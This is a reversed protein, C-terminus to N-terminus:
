LLLQEEVARHAQEFAAQTWPTGGADAGAFSIRDFRERGRTWPRGDRRGYPFLNYGHGWRNVTIALIDEAADFGWPGLVRDLEARIERELDAFPKSELEYRGLETQERAPRGPSYLYKFMSLVTPHDPHHRPRYTGVALPDLVHMWTCYGDPLYMPYAGTEALPRWQRLLVNIYLQSSYGYQELAELQTEPLGSVVHKAVMGWATVIAGKARVQHVAGDPRAYFLAVGEKGPLHEVRVVTSRLRLRVDDENRDFREPRVEANFVGEMSDEGSLADPLLKKLLHRAVSHNGDPYRYRPEYGYRLLGGDDYFGEGGVGFFGPGVRYGHLASLADCGLGVLDTAYLNSFRVAEDGLGLTERLYAEWSMAALAGEPDAVGELYNRRTTYLEVLERKAAESLPARAFFRDYPAEHFGTVWTPRIGPYTRPDFFVGPALGFRERFGPDRFGALRGPDIGLEELIRAAAPPSAAPEELDYTGGNVILTTDESRFTNRRAHGGFDENNELLLVRSRGGSERRHVYAAALGALGAGVVVLDYREGTDVIEAPLDRYIDDRVRHGRETSVPDQGAFGSTSGAARRPSLAKPLAIGVAAGQLFDRRTIPRGLGLRADEARRARSSSEGTM